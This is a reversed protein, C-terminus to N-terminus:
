ERAEGRDRMSVAFRPRLVKEYWGAWGVFGKSDFSNMIDLFTLDSSILCLLVCRGAAENNRM